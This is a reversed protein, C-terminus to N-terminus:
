HRALVGNGALLSIFGDYALMNTYALLITLVHRYPEIRYKHCIFNFFCDYWHHTQKMFEAMLLMWDDMAELLRVQVEIPLGALEFIPLVVGEDFESWPGNTLYSFYLHELSCFLKTPAAADCIPIGQTLIPAHCWACHESEKDLTAQM